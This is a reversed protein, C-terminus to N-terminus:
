GIGMILLAVAALTSFSAVGALVGILMAQNNKKNIIAADLDLAAVMRGKISDTESQYEKVARDVATSMIDQALKKSQAMYQANIYEAETAFSMVSKNIQDAAQNFIEETICIHALIPDDEGILIKKKRAIAEIVQQRDIMM